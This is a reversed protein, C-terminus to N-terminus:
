KYVRYEVRDGFVRKSKSDRTFITEGSQMASAAILADGFHAKREPESKDKLLNGALRAADSTLYIIDFKSILVAAELEEERNRIGTWIEAETIVSCCGSAAGDRVSEVYSIATQNKRNLYDILATTDFLFRPM